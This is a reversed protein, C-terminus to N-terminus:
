DEDSSDCHKQQMAYEWKFGGSSKTKHRACNVIASNNIAIARSAMMVSPWEKIFEGLLSYQNIKVANPNNAGSVKNRACEPCGTGRKGTRHGITTQWERGCRSCKWWVKKSSGLLFMDPKLSGNRTPHWEAAIDPRVTALDNVGKEVIQGACRPCGRGSTRASIETKWEYGCVSCKWWVKRNSGVLFMDPTLNGNRTRNWEAAIDPRKTALDNNGKILVKNACRPCGRGNVRNSIKAKWEYGCKSCIWWVSKESHRAFDHPSLDGNKEYNWEKSVPEDALSGNKGILRINRTNLSKQKACEPCGSGSTRKGVTTEWEKGCVSCKWWVKETSGPLFMEPTLKGNKYPHWEAAIAPYKKALSDKKLRHLYRGLIEFRDRELDVDVPSHMYKAYRRTLPNSRMDVYDLVVRIFNELNSRDDLGEMAYIQDATNIMEDTYKEKLRILRIGKERCLEYKRLERKVKNQKHWFVGDYEIALKISPIYIDLEMRDGIADKYRSVADQYVKSVYYFFAQEAFSTQRGSNCIPCNTGDKRHLITAQYEHGLPCRWWVKRPSGAFVDSPKLNGNKTPHWEAALAPHTTALDNKGKVIVRDACCPCGRGNVRNNIKAQWEYGCVPCKWWVTMTSQRTFNEPRLDGNKEYNWEQAVEEDALSGNKRIRTAINKKAKKKLACKPCGHDYKARDGVSAKWAYGCVSCKWNVKTTSTFVIRKPDLSENKEYDWDKLLDPRVTALDNYGPWVRRNSCYPCNDGRTRHYVAARWEHGNKCKWWVKKNSKWRLEDPFVGRNREWDWESM